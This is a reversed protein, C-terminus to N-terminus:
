DLRTEATELEGYVDDIVELLPRFQEASGVGKERVQEAFVSLGSVREKSKNLADNVRDLRIEVFEFTGDAATFWATIFTDVRARGIWAGVACAICLLLGLASLLIIGAGASRRINAM